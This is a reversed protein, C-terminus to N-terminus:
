RGSVLNLRERRWEDPNSPRQVISGLVARQHDNLDDLMGRSACVAYFDAQQAILPTSFVHNIARRPADSKNVGARHFLMSNFVLADGPRLEATEAFSEAFWESPAASSLHSGTLVQTGGTDGSFPDLAVLVSVALPRTSVWHQYNLDRHWKRQEHGDDSPNIVGNNTYLVFYEGLVSRAIDLMDAGLALQLFEPDECASARVINSDKISDFNSVGLRALQQEYALDVLNRLATAREATILGRLAYWGRTALAEEIEDQVNSPEPNQERVGYAKM